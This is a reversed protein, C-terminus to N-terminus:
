STLVIFIGTLKMIMIFGIATWIGNWLCMAISEMMKNFYFYITRQM